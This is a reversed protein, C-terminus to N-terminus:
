GPAPSTEASTFVIPEDATGAAMIKATRYIVLVGASDRNSVIKTGPDITITANNSVYVYGRLHYTKTSVWHQDATIEGRVFVDTVNDPITDGGGGPPNPGNDSKSCSSAGLIVMLVGLLFFTKKM